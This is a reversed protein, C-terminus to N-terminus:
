ANAATVKAIFERHRIGGLMEHHQIKDGSGSGRGHGSSTEIFPLGHDVAFIQIAMEAVKEKDLSDGIQKGFAKRGQTNLPTM